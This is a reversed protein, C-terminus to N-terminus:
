RTRSRNAGVTSGKGEEKLTANLDNGFTQLAPALGFILGCAVSIFITFALVRGDISVENMRPLNPPSLQLLQPMAVLALVLGVVGGLLSLVVNETLLQRIIRARSAGLAIRVAVERYREASKSLVLNAM